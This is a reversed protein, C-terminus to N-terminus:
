ADASVVGFDREASPVNDGLSQNFNKLKENMSIFSQFVAGASHLRSHYYHNM